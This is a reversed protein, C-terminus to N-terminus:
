LVQPYVHRTGVIGKELAPRFVMLSFFVHNHVSYMDGLSMMSNCPTKVSIANPSNILCNIFM